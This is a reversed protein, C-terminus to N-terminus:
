SQSKRDTLSKAVRSLHAIQRERRSGHILHALALVLFVIAVLIRAGGGVGAGFAIWGALIVFGGPAVWYPLSETVTLLKQLWDSVFGNHIVRM